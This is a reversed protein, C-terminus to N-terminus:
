SWSELDGDRCEWCDCSDVTEVGTPAAMEEPLLNAEPNDKYDDQNYCRHRPPHHLQHHHRHHRHPPPRHHHHRGLCQLVGVGLLRPLRSLLPAMPDKALNRDIEDEDKNILMEIIIMKIIMIIMKIIMIIMEFIMIIMKIIMIIMEIIMIIM